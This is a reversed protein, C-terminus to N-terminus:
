CNRVKIGSSEVGISVVESHHTESSHVEVSPLDPLRAVRRGRDPVMDDEFVLVMYHRVQECGGGLSRLRYQCYVKSIKSAQEGHFPV